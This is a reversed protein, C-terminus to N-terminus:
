RLDPLFAISPEKVDELRAVSVEYTMCRRTGEGPEKKLYERSQIRGWLRVQTGVSLRDAYRATRGWCICPIYDSRGYSRNVALLVETIEKGNPTRRYYPEKCVYGDLYIQNRSYAHSEIFLQMERAFVMMQMHRRGNLYYHYSRFEGFVEMEAGRHDQEPDALRDSLLVPLYDVRGGRGEVLLLVCQFGAGYMSEDAELQEVIRGYVAVQNSCLPKETKEDTKNM